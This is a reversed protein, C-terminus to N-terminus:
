VPDEDPLPAVDRIQGWLQGLVDVSDGGDVEDDFDFGEMVEDGALQDVVSLAIALGGPPIQALREAPIDGAAVLVPDPVVGDLIRMVDHANDLLPGLKQLQPDDFVGQLRARIAQCAETPTWTPCTTATM